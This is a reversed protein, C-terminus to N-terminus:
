RRLNATEIEDITLGEPDRGPDGNIAVGYTERAATLSVYGDRVDQRVREPERTKPDGYGGGGNTIYRSYASPATHWVHQRAYYFYVGNPDLAKTQEDLVGAIPTTN